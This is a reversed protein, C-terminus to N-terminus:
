VSYTVNLSPKIMDTATNYREPSPACTNRVISSRQGVRIYCDPERPSHLEPKYRGPGPTKPLPQGIFTGEKARETGDMCRRLKHTDGLKEGKEPSYIGPGPTEKVPYPNRDCSSKFPPSPVELTRTRKVVDSTDIEYQGPANPNHVVFKEFRPARQLFPKDPDDKRKKKSPLKYDAPGPNDNPSVWERPGRNGFPASNRRIQRASQVNYQGPGPTKRIGWFNKHRSKSGFPAFGKPEKWSEFGLGPTDVLTDPKQFIERNSTSLFEHSPLGNRRRPARGTNYQGPGPVGNDSSYFRKSRTIERGKEYTPHLDYDAPTSNFPSKVDVTRPSRSSFPERTRRRGKELSKQWDSLHQYNAPSPGHHIEFSQRPTVSNMTATGGHISLRPIDPHYDAPGPFDPPVAWDRAATVNFPFPTEGKVMISGHSEYSGPGVHPATAKSSLDMNRPSRTTISM